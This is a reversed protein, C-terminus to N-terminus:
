GDWLDQLKEVCIDADAEGGTKNRSVCCFQWFCHFWFGPTRTARLRHASEVIGVVDVKLIVGLPIGPWSAIKKTSLTHCPGVWGVM